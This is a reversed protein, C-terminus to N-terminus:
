CRTFLPPFISILANVMAVTADVWWLGSVYYRRQSSHPIHLGVTATSNTALFLMMTTTIVVPMKM